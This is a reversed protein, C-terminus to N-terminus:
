SVEHQQSPFSSFVNFFFILPSGSAPLLILVLLRSSVSWYKSLEGSRTDTGTLPLAVSSDAWPLPVSLLSPQNLWMSLGPSSLLPCLCHMQRAASNWSPGPSSVALFDELVLQRRWAAWHAAALGTGWGCGGEALPMALIVRIRM